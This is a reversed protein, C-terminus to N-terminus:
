KDHSDNKSLIFLFNTKLSLKLFVQICVNNFVLFLNIRLTQVKLLVKM